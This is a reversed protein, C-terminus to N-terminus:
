RSAGVGTAELGSAGRAEPLLQRRTFALLPKEVSLYALIGLLATAVFIVLYVVVGNVHAYLGLREAGKTLRGIISEHLLYITYSADGLLVLLAPFVPLRSREWAVAGTLVAGFGIAYTLIYPTTHDARGQVVACGAVILVGLGFVLPGATGDIRRSAYFAVMGVLFNLNLPLLYPLWPGAPVFATLFIASTIASFWLGLLFIGLRRSLILTSFLLYFAVEHFLTWAPPIPPKALSFRILTVTSLWGADDYPLKSADGRGSVLVLCLLGTYFWYIPYLRIFRKLGYRPWREPRDIDREHAAIIIFGSLVFFFDVGVQGRYTWDGLVAHGVLNPEDLGISLHFALVSLAALARGVQVSQLM